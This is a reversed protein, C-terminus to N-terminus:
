GRSRQHHPLRRRTTVATRGTSETWHSPGGWLWGRKRPQMPAMPLPTCWSGCAEVMPTSASQGPRVAEHALPDSRGSLSPLVQIVGRVSRSKAPIPRTARRPSGTRFRVAAGVPHDSGSGSGSGSGSCSCRTGHEGARFLRPWGRWVSRGTGWRPLQPCRRMVGARSWERPHPAGPWRSARLRCETPTGSRYGQDAVHLSQPLASSLCDVALRCPGCGPSGRASWGRTSRHKVHFSPVRVRAVQKVHFPVADRLFEGPRGVRRRFM